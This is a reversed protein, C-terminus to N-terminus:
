VVSKWDLFLNETIEFTLLSGDENSKIIREINEKFDPHLLTQPSLNVAVRIIGFKEKWEKAQQLATEIAWYTYEDILGNDELVSIFITPPVEGHRKSTWRGLAEVAVVKGSKTDVKPQYHLKFQKKQLSNRIDAIMALLSKASHDNEPNYICIDLKSSKAEHMALDAHSLSRFLM